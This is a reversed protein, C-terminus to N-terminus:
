RPKGSLVDAWSKGDVPDHGIGLYEMLTPFLDASSVIDSIVKAEKQGPMKVLCPVRSIEEISYSGGKYLWGHAGHATGHDTLFIVISDDYLNRKKLDDLIRGCQEDVLSMCGAYARWVRLLGQEPNPGLQRFYDGNQLHRHHEPRSKLDDRWSDPLPLHANEYLEWFKKPPAWPEHPMWFSTWLFHPTGSKMDAICELARDAIRVAPHKEIPFDTYGAHQRFDQLHHEPQFIGLKAAQKKWSEAQEASPRWDQQGELFDHIWDVWSWADMGDRDAGEWCHFLGLYGGRYGNESLAKLLTLNKRANNGFGNAYVQSTSPLCGTMWTVRSPQCMNAPQYLQEFRSAEGAFLDLNPTRAFGGYSGLAKRMVTD